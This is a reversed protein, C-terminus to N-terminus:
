CVPVHRDQHESRNVLCGRNAEAGVFVIQRYVRQQFFGRPEVHDQLFDFLHKSRCFSLSSVVVLGPMSVVLVTASCSSMLLRPQSIRIRHSAPATTMTVASTAPRRYARGPGAPAADSTAMTM